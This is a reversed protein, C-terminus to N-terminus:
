GFHTLFLLYKPNNDIQEKFFDGPMINAFNHEPPLYLAQILTLIIGLPEM